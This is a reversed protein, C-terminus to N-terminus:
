PRFIFNASVLWIGYLIIITGATHSLLKDSPIIKEMLVFVAIIAVWMLNMVGTVFLLAMLLWCCGVCYLGHNFGMSFAGLKGDKWENLLFGLPSRCHNLCAKKLPTFQFVGAFVLLIGGFLPNNSVMMDSLISINHLYWQILAALLSFATWVALYGLLFILTALLLSPFRINQRKIKSFTLLMPTASPMMMAIMMVTWMTFLFILEPFDWRDMVPNVMNMSVSNMTGALYFMYGWSMVIIVVIGIVLVTRDQKLVSTVIDKL